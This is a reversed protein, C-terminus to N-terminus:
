IRYPNHGLFNRVNTIDLALKNIKDDDIVLNLIEISVKFLNILASALRENYPYIINARLKMRKKIESDYNSKEILKMIEGNLSPWSDSDEIFRMSLNNNNKAYGEFATIIEFFRSTPLSFMPQHLYECIELVKLSWPIKQMSSLVDLLDFYHNVNIREFRAKPYWRYKTTIRRSIYRYTFRNQERILVVNSEFNQFGDIFTRLMVISKVLDFCYQATNFENFELRIKRAYQNGSECYFGFKIESQIKSMLETRKNKNSEIEFEMSDYTRSYIDSPEWLRDTSIIPSTILFIIGEREVWIDDRNVSTWLTEVEDQFYLNIISDKILKLKMIIENQYAIDEPSNCDIMITLQEFGTLDETIFGSLPETNDPFLDCFVNIYKRLKFGM